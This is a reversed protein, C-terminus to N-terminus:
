NGFRRRFPRSANPAALHVWRAVLKELESDMWLGFVEYSPEQTATAQGTPNQVTPDQVTPENEPLRDNPTTRENM